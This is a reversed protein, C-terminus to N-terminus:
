SVTILTLLAKTMINGEKILDFQFDAVRWKFMQLRISGMCFHLLADTSISQNFLGQQQGAVIVPKLHKTNVMMIKSIAQNIRHSKGMLGDSFVAVVFHPHQSFFLLQSKFIQEFKKIPTQEAIIANSYRNDMNEALYDLMAIIIDEKSEFHRYIASESFHMKKALNKITLGGVGSSSLISGAAEIIEFQRDTITNTM